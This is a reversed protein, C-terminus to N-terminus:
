YPKSPSTAKMASYTWAVTLDAYDAFRVTKCCLVFWRGSCEAYHRVLFAIEKTEQEGNSPNPRLNHSANHLNAGIVSPSWQVGVM